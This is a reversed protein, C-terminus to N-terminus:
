HKLRHIRFGKYTLTEVSSDKELAALVKEKEEENRGRKELFAEIEFQHLPHRRILSKIADADDKELSVYSAKSLFDLPIGGIEQQIRKMTEATVSEACSETPPRVPTNLYLRECDIEALLAKLKAVAEPHDNMGKVFMIELWLHGSYGKSFLVIGRYHEEFSLGGHPRNIRRFSTEDFCDLSPCVIDALAADARAKEDFLLAGNTILVVPKETRAKLGKILEGLNEELLPEGDGVISVVDFAVDKAKVEDFEALVEDIDVFSRRIHPVYDTKGLQCYVCGFNCTNGGVPSIGLSVGLRRSGIPGYVFRFGEM